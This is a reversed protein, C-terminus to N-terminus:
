LSGVQGPGTLEPLGRSEPVRTARALLQLMGPWIRAVGLMAAQGIRNKGFAYLGGAIKMQARLQRHMRRHYSFAAEGRLLSAAAEAATHLAMSIGDGTFSPIVALQDGLRFLSPTDDAAPRHLFGYPVRAITLPRELTDRAGDLRRRLHPNEAALDRLLGHWQGGARALRARTTLLCLNALGNEVLQLGAYSDRFLLIEILGELARCGTADLEFYSKFGVLEEAPPPRRLGRLEHKGTALLLASGRLMEGGELELGEGAASRIACGRRVSGGCSAAHSLLAEDLARRTLSSGEFPLAAEVMQRGRLVRVRGIPRAGLRGLDIGAAALHRRAEISIFEGCIKHRPGTERELLLTRRGAQALLTAAIAGSPGGGAVLIM